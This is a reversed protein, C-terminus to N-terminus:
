HVMVLLEVLGAVLCMNKSIDRCVMSYEPRFMSAVAFVASGYEKKGEERLLLLSRSTHLRVRDFGLNSIVESISGMWISIM